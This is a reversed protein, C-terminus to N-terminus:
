GKSNKNKIKLDYIKDNILEFFTKGQESIKNAIIILCSEVINQDEKAIVSVLSQTLQHM